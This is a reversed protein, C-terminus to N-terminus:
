LQKKLPGPASSVWYTSGDPGKVRAGRVPEHPVKQRMSSVYVLLDGNKEFMGALPWEPNNMQKTILSMAAEDGGVAADYLAKAEQQLRVTSEMQVFCSKFYNCLNSGVESWFYKLGNVAFVHPVTGFCFLISVLLMNIDTHSLNM